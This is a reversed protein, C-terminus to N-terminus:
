VVLIPFLHIIFAAPSDVIRFRHCLDSSLDLDDEVSSPLFLGLFFLILYRFQSWFSFPNRHLM